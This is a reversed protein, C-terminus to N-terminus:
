RQAIEVSPIRLLITTSQGAQYGVTVTRVHPAPRGDTTALCTADINPWTEAACEAPAKLDGKAAVAPAPDNSTGSIVAFAGGIREAAVDFEAQGAARAGNSPTLMLGAFILALGFLIAAAVFKRSDIM